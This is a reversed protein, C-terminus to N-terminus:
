FLTALLTEEQFHLPVKALAGTTRDPVLLYGQKKALEYLEKTLKVDNLCYDRLEDFRGENYLKIAELGSAHTKELGLNTKALINLSIRTGMALEIEELLDLRPLAMLDFSFHKKLVPMDFRNIAFGIVLGAKKLLPEFDAIQHEDFSFYKNHNYSYAGILSVTLRELNHQGGVDAFTNSTEIDLVLKDM